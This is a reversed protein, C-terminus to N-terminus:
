CRSRTRSTRPPTPLCGGRSRIRSRALLLDAGALRRLVVEQVLELLLEPGPALQDLIRDDRQDGRPGVLLQGRGVPHLRQAGLHQVRDFPQDLVRPDHPHQEQLEQGLSRGELPWGVLAPLPRTMASARARECHSISAEEVLDRVGAGVLLGGLAGRRHRRRALRAKRPRDLGVVEAAGVLEGLLLPLRELRHVLRESAQDAVREGGTQAGEHRRAERADLLPQVLLPLRLHRRRRGTVHDRQRREAAVDHDLEVLVDGDLHDVPQEPPGARQEIATAVHGLDLERQQTGERARDGTRQLVHPLLDRRDLRLQLVEAHVRAHDLDRARVVDHHGCEELDVESRVEARHRHAHRVRHDLGDGAAERRLDPLGRRSLDDLVLVGAPGDLREQTWAGTSIETSSPEISIGTLSTSASSSPWVSIRSAGASRGSAIVISPMSRKRQRGPIRPLRRATLRVSTSSCGASMGNSSSSSTPHSRPRAQPAALGRSAPPEAPSRPRAPARPSRQAEARPSGPASRLVPPASHRVVLFGISPSGSSPSVGCSAGSWCGSAVSGGASRGASSSAAGVSPTASSGGGGGGGRLSLVGRLGLLGGGELGLGDRLDGRRRAALRVLRRDEGRQGADDPRVGLAEVTEPLGRALGDDHADLAHSRAAALEARDGSPDRLEGLELALERAAVM